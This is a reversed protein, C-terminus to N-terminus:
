RGTTFRCNVTGRVLISILLVSVVAIKFDINLCLKNTETVMKTITLLRQESSEETVEVMSVVSDGDQLRIGRVGRAVRGVRRVDSGKFHISKGQTTNILLSSEDQVMKVTLLQDGDACNYARLGNSRVNRYEILATRKVLGQTSCFVLDVDGQDFSSINLVSAVADEKDIPVLNIIPTGAANRSTEPVKYVPLKFM